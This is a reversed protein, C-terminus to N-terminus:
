VRLYRAGPLDGRAQLPLALTITMGDSQVKATLQAHLQRDLVHKVMRAGFSEHGLGAGSHVPNVVRIAIKGNDVRWDIRRSASASMSSGAPNVLLENLVVALPQVQEVSLLVTPSNAAVAITPSASSIATVLRALEVARWRAESLLAHALAIADVRGLVADAYTDIGHDRGSLRVVGQVLALANKARHDVERLLALEARELDRAQRAASVDMQSAFFYSLQGDDNHVPSVHLQNWFPRGSKRYNLLEVTVPEPVALANRIIEVARPDTDPGQLFRCNRGIVEGAAYGTQALFAANVLVIPNDPLRADSIAIPMRTRELAVFALEKGDRLARESAIIPQDASPHLANPAATLCGEQRRRKRLVSLGLILEASCAM